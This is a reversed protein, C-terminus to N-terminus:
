MLKVSSQVALMIEDRNKEYWEMFEEWDDPVEPSWTWHMALLKEDM